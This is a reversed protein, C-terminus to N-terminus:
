EAEIVCLSQLDKCDYSIDGVEDTRLIKIGKEKLREMVESAPHGYRNNQSVSIIAEQPNILDLFEQNTSYKSGHHGVKLVQSALGTGAGTLKLEGESTLDGTFLFSNPGYTLKAVISSVNTDKPNDKAQTGDPSLIEIPIDEALKIKVGKKGETERINKEQIVEKFRKYVQSESSVGNDIVQGIQYNEMADILGSIHDSDPHTAILMEIQRDWFPLYKGLKEMIIQGNPGGDILIQNSGRSILIADGQGVDLFIIKLKQNRSSFIIGALILSVALLLLIILYAKKNRFM